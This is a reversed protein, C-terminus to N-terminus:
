GIRYVRSATGSFLQDQEGDSYDVAIKQFANWIVTYGFSERDVPYNSEFMCRSPGFTDICWRIDDGWWEVIEDSGPPRGRTSWGTAFFFDMGVGGLKVVVNPCTALQRLGHQWDAHVRDRDRYPGVNLPAGLHNLVITTGDTSRALDTLDPLQPHYLWADFSYGLEGLRTVGRRFEPEAMLRPAPRHHGPRFADSGDWATAHRVGRFRGAGAMEHAHLVVDVAEGRRLDAFSVIASLRPTGGASARAQGAVFETEGVPRLEEPGRERYNTVTEIFVTDTVNHGGMDSILDDYLYRRGGSDYLHHHPDVIRRRADVPEEGTLTLWETRDVSTM